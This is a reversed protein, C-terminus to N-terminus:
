IATGLSANGTLIISETLPSVAKMREMVEIGSIDPLMLDILALNVFEREAEAVGEMGNKATAMKYGKARLIDCLTKRANPDDDIVLIRASVNVARPGKPKETEADMDSM